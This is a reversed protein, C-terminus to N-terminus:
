RRGEELCGVAIGVVKDLGRRAAPARRGERGEGWEEVGPGEGGHCAMV